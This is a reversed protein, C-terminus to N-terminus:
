NNLADRWMTDDWPPGYEGDPDSFPAKRNTPDIPAPTPDKDPPVQKPALFRDSKDKGRNYKDIQDQSAPQKEPSSKGRAFFISLSNIAKQLNAQAQATGFIAVYSIYLTGIFLIDVAVAMACNANYGIVSTLAGQKAGYGFSGGFAVSVGGGVLAGTIAHKASNGILDGVGNLSSDNLFPVNVGIWESAGASIGGIAAGLGVNGGTISSNIAGSAAGAAAFAATHALGQLGLGGVAGFMAGSIAGTLFGQSISTGTAAAVIGGVLSGIIAGKVISIIIPIFWWFHGTPDIYNIPNNRCYAYRNLSQSDYPAQVITDATIFRGIFPDYYRAGYYYLGTKDLEKGTFLYNTPSQKTGEPNAIVESTRTTGFPAYEYYQALNGGADTIVNSSGLHDSHYYSIEERSAAGEASSARLTHTVVRNAGAFIHKRITGNSDKEYLSGIYETTRIGDNTTRSVKVRGGDGDYVFSTTASGETVKTLRNEADYALSKGRNLTMNGNDDYQYSYGGASIVAHPRIVQGGQTRATTNYAMNLNVGMESKYIMNGISNYQYSATQIGNKQEEILRDLSDYSFKRTNRRSSVNDILSAVNGNSDFTYALDQLSVGQNNTTKINSLRLDQGYEYATTTNNGYLINAIQGNAHYTISQVYPVTGQPSLGEVRRLLGSNPNYAYNIVEDDSYKLSALRDLIDYTREVKYDTGDITKISKVERGLLDYFFETSGSQDTVKSLRGVCNDKPAENESAKDYFYSALLVPVTGQPSLGQKSILRNIKDYTFELVQNKADTQKILNGIADYEYYWTGMDPDVMKTKRGISDYFIQTINGNNDTTKTLNNQIDYEYYTHFAGDAKAEAEGTVFEKVEIINGWVDKLSGKRHGLPDLTETYLPSIYDIRTKADKTDTNLNLDAINDVIRNETVFTPGYDAIIIKPRGRRDYLYKTYAEAPKDAYHPLSERDTLGRNNFYIETSVLRSKAGDEGSSITQYKRGLGDIYETKFLGLANTTTKWRFHEDDYTYRTTVDGNANTVEMSRGLEDYSTSTTANNTDTVSKVVGFKPEYIYTISHGLANVVKEPYTHFKEEYYTKVENNLANTTSILNGYDPEYAYKTISAKGAPNAIDAPDIISVIDRSLNGKEDYEFSKETVVKGDKDMFSVKTPRNFGMISPDYKENPKTHGYAPSYITVTSRKDESPQAGLSVAEIVNGINDYILKDTTKVSAGNEEYVTSMTQTLAPFGLYREEPGAKQVTYTNIVESIPHNFGDFARIKWIQGKKAGEDDEVAGPDTDPLRGQYFYTETYNKTLPDTVTVKGFGRFEREDADFYGGSFNFDQTYTAARDVPENNILSIKSAVYVPFPLLGNESTAAYTYTVQTKGGIGNNIATMLDAPKNTSLKIKWRNIGAQGPDQDKNFVAADTIGNGDFDGTTASDDLNTGFSELWVGKDIFKEGTSIAYYWKGSEKDWYGVDTLGDNNFDSVMVDKNAAFNPPWTKSDVFAEANSFAVKFEGSSKKFLCLDTLGDGNFDGGMASYDSGSELTAWIKFPEFGTANGLAVKVEGTDKNYFAFDTYKDGNFNGTWPQWSYSAQDFKFVVGKDSFGSGTSTAIRFEGTTNNYLGVDTRGDGNFDGGMPWWNKNGKLEDPMKLSFSISKFIENEPVYKEALCIEWTATDSNYLGLDSLADGNFDGMVPNIANRDANPDVVDVNKSETVSLGGSDSVTVSINHQAIKSFSATATYGEASLSGSALEVGDRKLIFTMPDGDPDDASVSISIQENPLVSYENLKLIPQSLSRSQPPRNTNNVIVRVMQSVMDIGDSATVRVNYVGADDYDPYWYGGADFPESYYYTLHDHDADTAQPVIHVVPDTQGESVILDAMPPFVPPNNRNGVNVLMGQSVTLGAPDETVSIEFPYHNKGTSPAQWTAESYYFNGEKRVKTQTFYESYVFNLKKGNLDVAKVTLTVADGEKVSLPSLQAYIIAPKNVTGAPAAVQLVIDNGSFQNGDTDVATFHIKETGFWGTNPVFTVIHTDSAITVKINNNGAVQYTLAYGEPSTFFDDLDLANDKSTDIPWSYYDPIEQKLVPPNSQIVPIFGASLVYSTSIAEGVCPEGIADFAVKNQADVATREASGGGTADANLNYSTGSSFFAAAERMPGFTAIHLLILTISLIRKLM